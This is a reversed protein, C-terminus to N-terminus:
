TSWGAGTPRPERRATIRRFTQAQGSGRGVPRRSTDTDWFQVCTGLLQVSKLWFGAPRTVPMAPDAEPVAPRRVPIRPCLVPVAPAEVPVALGRSGVVPDGEPAAPFLVPVPLDDGPVFLGLVRHTPLPQRPAPCSNGTGARGPAISLPPCWTTPKTASRRGWVGTPRPEQRATILGQLSRDDHLPCHCCRM